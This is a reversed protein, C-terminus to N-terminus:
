AAASEQHLRSAPPPMQVDTGHHAFSRGAVRECHSVNSLHLPREEVSAQGTGNSAMPSVLVAPSHGPWCKSTPTCCPFLTAHGVVSAAGCPSRVQRSVTSPALQSVRVTPVPSFFVPLSGRRVDVPFERQCSRRWASCASLHGDKRGRSAAIQLAVATFSSSARGTLNPRGPPFHQAPEGVYNADIDVRWDWIFWINCKAGRWLVAGLSGRLRQERWLCARVCACACM